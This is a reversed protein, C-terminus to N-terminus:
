GGCVKFRRHYFYFVEEKLHPTSFLVGFSWLLSFHFNFTETKLSRNLCGVNKLRGLFGLVGDFRDSGVVVISSFNLIRSNTHTLLINRSSFVTVVVEQEQRSPNWVLGEACSYEYRHIHKFTSVPHPWLFNHPGQLTTETKDISKAM